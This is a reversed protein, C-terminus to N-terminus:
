LSCGCDGVPECNSEDCVIPLLVNVRLGGLDASRRLEVSGGYQSALENVISLGLGSGVARNSRHIRSFHKLALAYDNECLGPGNDEISLHMQEGLAGITIRISLDQSPSSGYKVSNQVLNEVITDIAFTLHNQCITM